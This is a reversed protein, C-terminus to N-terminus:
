TPCAWRTRTGKLATRRMVRTMRMRRMTTTTTMTVPPGRRMTMMQFFFFIVELFLIVKTQFM